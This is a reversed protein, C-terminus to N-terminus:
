TTHQMHTEPRSCYPCCVMEWFRRWSRLDRVSCSNGESASLVRKRGKGCISSALLHEEPRIYFALHACVCTPIQARCLDRAWGQFRDKRRLFSLAEQIGAWHGPHINLNFVDRHEQPILPVEGAGGSLCIPRLTAPGHRQWLGSTAPCCPHPTGDGSGM